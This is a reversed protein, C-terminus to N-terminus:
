TRSQEPKVELGSTLLEYQRLNADTSHIYGKIENKGGQKRRRLSILVSESDQIDKKKERGM